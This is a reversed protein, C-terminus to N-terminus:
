FITSHMFTFRQSDRRWTIRQPAIIDDRLAPGSGAVRGIRGALWALIWESIGLM